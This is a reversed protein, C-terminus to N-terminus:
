TLNQDPPDVCHLFNRQSRLHSPAPQHDYLMHRSDCTEKLCEQKSAAERRIEPPAIDAPWHLNSTNTLKLCGTILCCSENLVPNLLKAHASRGWAPCVHKAASYSLALTTTRLMKPSAGWKSLTLKRLINNCTSVKAKTKRIHEKYSLSQDLTVGLYM